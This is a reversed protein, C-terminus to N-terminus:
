SARIKHLSRALEEARCLILTRVVATAGHQDLPADVDAALASSDNTGDLGARIVCDIAALIAANTAKM